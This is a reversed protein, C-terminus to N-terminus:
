DHAVAKLATIARFRFTKKGWNNTCSPLIYRCAGRLSRTHQGCQNLLRLLYGSAEGAAVKSVLKTFTTARRVSLLSINLSDRARTASFRPNARLVVRLARNQCVELRASREKSLSGLMGSCYELVPRIMSTYILLSQQVTLYARVKRLAYVSRNCKTTIYDVHDKFSLKSDLVLGLVKVQSSVLIVCGDITITLGQPVARNSYIICETKGPALSLGNASYWRKLSYYHSVIADLADCHSTAATHVLSDDAYSFVNEHSSLLDNVMMNFLLPGLVSGQPVGKTIACPSSIADAVRMSQTRHSLYSELLTCSSTSFLFLANLKRLLLKHNVTDFAKRVDLSLHAVFKPKRTDLSAMFHDTVALLMQETSINSRFGFQRESLLQHRGLHQTIQQYLVSELIKSLIPLSSIPRYNGALERDGKKFIPTVQACKYCDPFVSATISNNIIHTLCPVVTASLCQYVSAPIGQIGGKKSSELRRLARAM